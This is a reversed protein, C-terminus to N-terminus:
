RASRTFPFVKTLGLIDTVLLVVFIFILAGIIGNGGAPLSDIQHSMSAVEADTLAAIRTAADSQSIGFRELQAQVEPRDLTAVFKAREQEANATAVVQETSIMAAQVSQTFGVFLFSTALVYVFLQKLKRIM